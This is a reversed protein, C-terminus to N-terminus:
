VIPYGQPNASPSQQDSYIVPHAEDVVKPTLAPAYKILAPLSLFYISIDM